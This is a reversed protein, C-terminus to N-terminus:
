RGRNSEEGMRRITFKKGELMPATEETGRNINSAMGSRHRGGGKKEHYIKQREGLPGSKGKKESLFTV